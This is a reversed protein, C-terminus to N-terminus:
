KLVDVYLSCLIMRKSLTVIHKSRKRALQNWRSMFFQCIYEIIHFLYGGVKVSINIESVRVFAEIPYISSNYQHILLYPLKDIMQLKNKINQTMTKQPQAYLSSSLKMITGINVIIRMRQQTLKSILSWNLLQAWIIRTLKVLLQLWYQIGTNKLGDISYLQSFLLTDRKSKKIM